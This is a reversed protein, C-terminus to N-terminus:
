SQDSLEIRPSADAPIMVSPPRRKKNLRAMTAALTQRASPTLMGIM